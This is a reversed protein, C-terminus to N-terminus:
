VAELRDVIQEAALRAVVNQHLDRHAQARRHVRM